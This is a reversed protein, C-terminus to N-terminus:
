FAGNQLPNTFSKLCKSLTQRIAMGLWSACSAGSNDTNYLIQLPNSPNACCRGSRGRSGHLMQPELISRKTFSKYLIPPIQFLIQRMAMGLWSAGSAGSHDTKYLIQLPNSANPFSRASRWGSGHPKRPELYILKTFSKYLIQLIQFPNAPDAMQAM